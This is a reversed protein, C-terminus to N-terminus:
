DKKILIEKHVVKGDVELVIVFLSDYYFIKRNKATNLFDYFTLNHEGRSYVQNVIKYDLIRGQMDLLKLSVASEEELTFNVSFFKNAPNPFCRVNYDESPTFPYLEGQLNNDRVGHFARFSGYNSSSPRGGPNKLWHQKLCRGM